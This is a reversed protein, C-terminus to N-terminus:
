TNELEALEEVIESDLENNKLFEESKDEKESPPASFEGSTLVEKESPPASFEGSTLVEKESPTDPIEEIKNSSGMNSDFFTKNLPYTTKESSILVVRPKELNSFYVKNQRSHTEGEQSQLFLRPQQQSGGEQDQSQVVRPQQQSGGEQDQSQVVRPQQQSGGEQSQVVRLQQQSVGQQSQVVRLQQQSGGQQSQIVRPQQLIVNPKFQPVVSKQQIIKSQNLMNFLEEHKDLLIQQDEIKKSLNDLNGVLEKYKKNFFYVIGVLILLESIIHIIMSKNEKMNTNNINM